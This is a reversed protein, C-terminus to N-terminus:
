SEDTTPPRTCIEELLLFQLHLERGFHVGFRYARYLYIVALGCLAATVLWDRHTAAVIALVAVSACLGRCLGYNGNFTDIRAANGYQAVEVYIQRAIPRWEARDLGRIKKSIGLRTELRVELQEIQDASVISTQPKVSWESPFGGFLWWGANEIINGAAAVAHGAAYSLLLFIGLGGVSISDKAFSDKLAPFYFLLGFLLVAGPIVIGVQEYFTLKKMFGCKQSRVM